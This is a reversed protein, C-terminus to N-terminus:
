ETWTVDLVVLGARVLDAFVTNVSVDSIQDQVDSPLSSDILGAVASRKDSLPVYAALQLAYQAELETVAAEIEDNTTAQLARITSQLSRAIIDKREPKAISLDM